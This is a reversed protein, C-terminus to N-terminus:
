WILSHAFKNTSLFYILWTFLSSVNIRIINCLLIIIMIIIFTEPIILLTAEIGFQSCNISQLQNVTGWCNLYCNIPQCFSHPLFCLSFYISINIVNFYIPWSPNSLHTSICDLFVIFFTVFFSMEHILLNLFLSLDSLDVLFLDVNRKNAISSSFSLSCDHLYFLSILLIYPSSCSFSKYKFLLKGIMTVRITDSKSLLDNRLM